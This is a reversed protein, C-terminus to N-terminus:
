QRGARDVADMAAVMEVFGTDDTGLVWRLAALMGVTGVSGYADCTRQAVNLVTRLQQIVHEIEAKSKM